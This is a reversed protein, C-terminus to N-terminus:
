PSVGDSEKLHSRFIVRHGKALQPGYGASRSVNDFPGRSRWSAFVAGRLPGNGLPTKRKGKVFARGGISATLALM